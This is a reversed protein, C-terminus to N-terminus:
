HHRESWKAIGRSGRFSEYLQYTRRLLGTKALVYLAAKQFVNLYADSRPHLRIGIQLYKSAREFDHTKLYDLASGILFEERLRRTYPMYQPHKSEFIGFALLMDALVRDRNRMANGGHLRYRALVDPIYGVRGKMAIEAYFLWDSTSGVREDFGYAPIASRRVMISCSAFGVTSQLFAEIGGSRSRNRRREHQLKLPAGNEDIHEVNGYCAVADPNAGFWAVQKHLKGPLWMDDGSTYAIFEGECARLTRNSNVTIGQNTEALLLKFLGPHRAAYERLIDQTGDTSGDDGIVIEMNPYDQALVSEVSERIFAAHQYSLMYVSIKPLDM